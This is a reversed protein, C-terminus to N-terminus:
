IVKIGVTKSSKLRFLSLYLLTCKKKLNVDAVEVLSPSLSGGSPRSKALSQGNVPSVQRSVAGQSAPSPSLSGGSQRSKALSRGRVPSVQRSVAGQSYGQTHLINNCIDIGM